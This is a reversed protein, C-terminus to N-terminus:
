VTWFKPCAFISGQDPSNVFTLGKRFRSAYMADYDKPLAHLAYKSVEGPGAACSRVIILAYGFALQICAFETLVFELTAYRM